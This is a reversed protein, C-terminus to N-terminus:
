FIQRYTEIFLFTLIGLHAAFSDAVELLQNVTASQTIKKGFKNNLIKLDISHLFLM